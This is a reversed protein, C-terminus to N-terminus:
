QWKCDWLCHLTVGQGTVLPVKDTRETKALTIPLSNEEYRRKGGGGGPSYLQTDKEYLDASCPMSLVTCGSAEPCPLGASCYHKQRTSPKLTSLDRNYPSYVCPPCPRAASSLAQAFACLSPLHPHKQTGSAWSWAPQKRRVAGWSCNYHLGLYLPASRM